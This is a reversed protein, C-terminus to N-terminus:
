RSRKPKFSAERPARIELYLLQEDVAVTFAAGKAAPLSRQVTTGQGTFHLERTVRADPLSLTVEQPTVPLVKHTDPDYSSVELWLLLAYSGDHKALLVHHLAPPANRAPFGLRLPAPHFPAPDDRLLQLLNHVATFAPKETLDHRLLGYGTDPFEDLLEYLFTRRIGAQYALLLTRPVYAAEVTEPLTDPVAAASRYGTETIVDPMGKANLDAQDQWWALSGYRHQQADGAGWGASGPHRDGFYVHLNNLDILSGLEGSTAYGSQMTFSPGILPVDLRRAAQRLTPLMSVVHAVGVAGGGGCNKDADCENPAELAEVDRAERADNVITDATLAPDIVFGCTCGIGAAALSRHQPLFTPTTPLGDRIHRVGLHHIAALVRPWQAYPTDLYSIHTQVGVTDVFAAAPSAQERVFAPALPEHTGDSAQAQGAISAPRATAARCCLAGSIFLALAPVIRRRAAPRACRRGADSRGFALSNAGLCSIRFRWTSASSAGRM